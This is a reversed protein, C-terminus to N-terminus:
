RADPDSGDHRGLYADRLWDRDALESMGIRPLLSGRRLVHAFDACRQVLKVDQEVLLVTLDDSAKLVCLLEAIERRVIPALGLSPEDLLLVQPASILARGIALMQQQGGSLLGAHQDVRERLIPFRQLVSELQRGIEAPNSARLPTAGVLLNERVTLSSFIGRGEPVYAIGLRAIRHPRMGELRVGAPGVIAGSTVPLYGMIARLTTTKGAGNPGIIACIEGAEIRLSVDRIVNANGYSASLGDLVLAV